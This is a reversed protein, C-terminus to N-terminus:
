NLTELRSMVWKLDENVNVISEKRVDLSRTSDDNVLVQLVQLDEDYPIKKDICLQKFASVDSNTLEPDDAEINNHERVIWYIFDDEAQRKTIPKILESEIRDYLQKYKLTQDKAVAHMKSYKLHSRLKIMTAVLLSLVLTSGTVTNTLEEILAFVPTLIAITIHVYRFLKDKFSYNNIIFSLKLKKKLINKKVNKICKYGATSWEM